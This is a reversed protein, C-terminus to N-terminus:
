CVIGWNHYIIVVDLSGSSDRTGALASQNELGGARREDIGVGKRDVSEQLKRRSSVPQAVEM